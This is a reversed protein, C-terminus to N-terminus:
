EYVVSFSIIIVWIINSIESLRIAPCRGLAQTHRPAGIQEKVRAAEWTDLNCDMMVVDIHGLSRIKFRM